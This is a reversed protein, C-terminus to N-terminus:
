EDLDPVSEFAKELFAEDEPTMNITQFYELAEPDAIYEVKGHNQEVLRVLDDITARFYEKRLNVKNVRQHSLAKHLANELAPADECQIMMHVDFPFPVSADGLEKVREMPELRRTMGVKFVDKGFSGINSIVYVNGAKIGKEANSLTRQNADLEAQKEALRKEMELIEQSHQGQAAELAEQIAKELATKEREAARQKERMQEIERQIRQEERIQAKLQAQEEKEAERRLIKQYQEQLMDVLRKEEDKSIVYGIARCSNLTTTLREKIQPYNDSKLKASIWEINEELYRIALANSRKIIEADHAQFIKRQMEKLQNYNGSLTNKYAELKKRLDDLRQKEAKNEKSDELKLMWVIAAGIVTCLIITIVAFTVGAKNNMLSGAGALLMFCLVLSLCGTGLYRADFKKRISQLPFSLIIPDNNPVVPEVEETFHEKFVVVARRASKWGEKQILTDPTITGNQILFVIAKEDIPGVKKDNVIYYYM